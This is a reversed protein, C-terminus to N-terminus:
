CKQPGPIWGCVVFLKKLRSKGELILEEYHPVSVFNGNELSRREFGLRPPPSQLTLKIRVGSIVEQARALKRFSLKTPPRLIVKM